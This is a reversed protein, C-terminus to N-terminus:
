MKKGTVAHEETQYVSQYIKQQEVLSINKILVTKYTFMLPCKCLHVLSHWCWIQTYIHLLRVLSLGCASWRVLIGFINKWINRGKAVFSYGHTHPTKKKCHVPVQIQWEAPTLLLIIPIFLLTCICLCLQWDEFSLDQHCAVRQSCSCCYAVHHLQSHQWLM